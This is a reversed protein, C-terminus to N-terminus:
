NVETKGIHEDFFAETEMLMKREAHKYALSHGGRELEVFKVDAKNKRLAKYMKKSHRFKVKQDDKAHILLVPIDIEGAQLLASQSAIFDEQMKYDGINENFYERAELREEKDRIGKLNEKISNKWDTVGNISVTCTLLDTKIALMLAAYGGYSVGAACIRNPDVRGSKILGRIGSAIDDIMANGYELKGLDEFERGYGTSGRFNPQFVAFGRTAWFQVIRDYALSDQAKPGGHPYVILPLPGVQQNAPVTLYGRILTKDKTRYMIEDVYTTPVNRMHPAMDVIEHIKDSDVNYLYYSGKRWPSNTYFLFKKNDSSITIIHVGGNPFRSELYTQVGQVVEDFYVYQTRNSIYSVGVVEETFQNTIAADVDYNELEYAIDIYEKAKIDYRHLKYYKDDDVRDVILITADGEFNALQRELEEEIESLRFKTIKNWRKSDQDYSLITVKRSRAFYDLRLHPEGNENVRFALTNPGGSAVKVSTGDLINVRYLTLKTDPYGYMLIQDPIQSLPSAIISLDINEALSVQDHLMVSEDQGDLGLSLLRSPSWPLEFGFELIKYSLGLREDSLWRVGTFSRKGSEIFATRETIQAGVEFIYLGYLKDDPGRKIIALHKGNPSLSIDRFAVERFFDDLSPARTQNEQGFGSSSVLVIVGFFIVAVAWRRVM